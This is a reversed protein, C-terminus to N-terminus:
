RARIVPQRLVTKLREPKTRRPDGLYTEHHKGHLRCGNEKAYHHIREITPKEEAYPGIHMVQVCLGESFSEFRVKPLAPPNKKRRLEEIAADVASRTIADPHMIMAKWQWSESSQNMDFTEDTTWWLAELPM